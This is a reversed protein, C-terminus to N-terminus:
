FFPHVSKEIVTKSFTGLKYLSVKKKSPTKSRKRNAEEELALDKQEKQKDVKAQKAFKKDETVIGIHNEIYQCFYNFNLWDRIRLELNMIDTVAIAACNKDSM